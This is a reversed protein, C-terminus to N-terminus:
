ERHNQNDNTHLKSIGFIKKRFYNIMHIDEDQSSTLYKGM